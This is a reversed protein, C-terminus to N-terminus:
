FFGVVEQFHDNFISMFRDFSLSHLIDQAAHGVAAVPCFGYIEDFFIADNRFLDLRFRVLRVVGVAEHGHHVSEQAFVGHLQPFQDQGSFIRISAFLFHQSFNILGFADGETLGDLGKVEGVTVLVLDIVFFPIQRRLFKILLVDADGKTIVHRDDM